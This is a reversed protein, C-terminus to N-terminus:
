SGKGARLAKLAERFDKPLPAEFELEEGSSPHKFALTHAHLLQRPAEYGTLGALRQNPKVGYLADGVVPHGIYQFHVRIQHTRGTHLGIEVHTAGHLRERVKFTTWADRGADVVAMLKRRHPHRALPARISGTDNALEGCVLAHYVKRMTRAAFQKSLALHANDNKAVVLCGTTDEDLRHVIGPRAVGAIGSLKGRCHHLLANVLTDEEHGASPHVVMGPEKNLVILEADEYLVNLPIEQAKIESSRPPPWTVRVVEGARPHHTPKAPQGNILIHEEEILRQIAARSAAPYRTTLFKDLREGPLSHEITFTETRELTM